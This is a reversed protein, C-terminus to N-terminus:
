QTELFMCNVRLGQQDACADLFVEMDERLQFVFLFPDKAEPYDAERATKVAELRDEEDLLLVSPELVFHFTIEWQKHQKLLFM